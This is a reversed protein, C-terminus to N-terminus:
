WLSAHRRRGQIPRERGDVGTLRGRAYNARRLRSKAFPHRSPQGTRSQGPSVAPGMRWTGFAPWLRIRCTWVPAIGICFKGGAPLGGAALPLYLEVAGLELDDRWETEPYFDWPAVTLLRGASATDALDFITEAAALCREAYSRDTARSIRFCLAFYAALRGGPQPETPRRARRM